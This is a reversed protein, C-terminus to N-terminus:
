EKKRLYEDFDEDSFDSFLKVCGIQFYCESRFEQVEEMEQDPIQDLIALAANWDPQEKEVASRADELLREPSPSCATLSICLLLILLLVSLKKHPISKM